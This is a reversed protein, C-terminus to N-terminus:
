SVDYFQERLSSKARVKDLLSKMEESSPILTLGQKLTIVASQPEDLRLQTEAKRIYARAWLKDCELAKDCDHIADRFRELKIYCIARNTHLAASPSVLVAETYKKLAQKYDGGKFLKNGEAKLAEVAASTANSDVMHHSLFFNAVVTPCCITAQDVRPSCFVFILSKPMRLLAM